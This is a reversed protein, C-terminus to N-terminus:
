IRSGGSKLLSHSIKKRERKAQNDAHVRAEQGDGGDLGHHQDAWFAEFVYSFGGWMIGVLEM